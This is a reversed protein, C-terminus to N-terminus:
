PSPERSSALSRAPSALLSGDPTRPEVRQGDVLLAQGRSVIADGPDLGSVIEVEGDRHIGTEVAVREVRDGERMRFVVAGDARQLVAEEPVMAVGERTAVGLDVRAFLGPRLKRESNLLEAKVRLTRTRPDITPSVVTVRAPFDEEPYPAVRVAVAQGREVRSSDIESVHFEVEIPDLSVLEFLTQGQAVFEGRSVLRRAILGAFPARVTADELARRAVGVAAAAALRRAEALELATQAEDLQTESAVHNQRLRELRTLERRAEAVAAAAERLRAEVSEVELNRREPDIEVVAAGAGVAQGEDVLLDTVRGNVEAAIDAREVALLQGTAEIRDVLNRTVVPAISVARGVVPPLEAEEGCGLLALCLALALGAPPAAASWRAPEPGRAASGISSFM